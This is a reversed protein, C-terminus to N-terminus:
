EVAESGVAQDHFLVLDVVQFGRRKGLVADGWGSDLDVEFGSVEHDGGAGDAAGAKQEAGVDRIWVLPDALPREDVRDVGGDGLHRLPDVWVVTGRLGDVRVFEVEAVADVTGGAVFQFHRRQVRAHGAAHDGAVALVLDVVHGAQGVHLGGDGQEPVAEM